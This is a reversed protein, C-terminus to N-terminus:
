RLLPFLRAAVGSFPAATDGAIFLLMNYRKRFTKDDDPRAATARRQPM